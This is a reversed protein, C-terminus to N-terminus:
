STYIEPVGHMGAFEKAREGDLDCVATVEAHPHSAHGKFHPTAALGLGVIGVKLKESM